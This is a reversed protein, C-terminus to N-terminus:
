DELAVAQVTENTLTAWHDAVLIASDHTFQTAHRRLGNWPGGLHGHRASDYYAVPQGERIIAVAYHM